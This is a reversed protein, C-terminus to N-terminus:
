NRYTKTQLGEEKGASQYYTEYGLELAIDCGGAEAVLRKIDIKTKHRLKECEVEGVDPLNFIDRAFQKSILKAMSETKSQIYMRAESSDSSARLRMEYWNSENM